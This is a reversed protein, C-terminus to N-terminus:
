EVLVLRYFGSTEAGSDTISSAEGAATLAAGLAVWEGANVSPRFELQYRKGAVSRWTIVRGVDGSEIKLIGFVSGAEAADTGARFEAANTMGDQDPDDGAEFRLDGFIAREWDDLLGDKDADLDAVPGDLGMAFVDVSDNGDGEVFNNSASVFLVMSGERNLQPGFSTASGSGTLLRLSAQERDYIFVDKCENTDGPAINAAQSEFAIFRGAGDISPDKSEGNGIAGESSVSVYVINSAVVDLFGVQGRVTAAGTEFAIVTASDNAAIRRLNALPFSQAEQTVLNTIQIGNANFYVLKTSDASFLPSRAQSTVVAALATEANWLRLASDTFAIWKGDPSGAVSSPSTSALNVHTETEADYRYVGRSSMFYVYRADNSFRELSLNGLDTGSINKLTDTRLDRLYISTGVRDDGTGALRRVDSEFAVRSGDGSIMPNFSGAGQTFGNTGVSPLAFKKLQRDYVYVDYVANTDQPDLRAFTRFAVYRGDDSSAGRGIASGGVVTRVPNLRARSLLSLESSQMAFSYVDVARNTDGDVISDAATEFILKSEEQTFFALATENDHTPAGTPTRTGLRTSGELMDRVYLQQAGNGVGAVLEAADSLFAVHRGDRSIVPHYATRAGAEGGADVLETLGRAGDWWFINTGNAHAIFQGDDSIVPGVSESAASTPFKNTIVLTSLDNLDIRILQAVGSPLPAAALAVYRGNGSLTANFSYSLSLGPVNTVVASVWRNTGAAIDYLYVEGQNTRSPAMLNQGSVSFLVFNGDRSFEFEGLTIDASRGNSGKTILKTTQDARSWVFLDSSGNTDGSVLNTAFSEFVVWNGNESMLPFESRGNGGPTISITAGDSLDKLFIDAQNNVDGAVFNTAQSSFVVYRGGATISGGMSSGNGGPTLLQLEDTVTDLVFLQLGQGTAGKLMNDAASSFM